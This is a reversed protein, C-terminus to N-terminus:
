TLPSPTASNNMYPACVNPDKVQSPDMTFYGRRLGEMYSWLWGAGQSYTLKQADAWKCLFDDTANFQTALSWEGYWVPLNGMAGDSRIDSRNCIDQLYAEPHAAAVGLRYYLHHDYGQPGIAAKAPNPPKNYQWIIDMFSCFADEDSLKTTLPARGQCGGFDGLWGLEVLIDPLIYSAETLAKVVASKPKFLGTSCANSLRESMDADDPMDQLVPYGEVEIGLLLEVARVTEVFNKQFHGYGPTQTANMIPENVAQIAFVSGFDPHLHSLATMVATWTLSHGTFLQNPTQVGPLAHHDLIVKIDADRLMKLGCSLYKIGGRPYSETTRNVLPEVIWYGLPIRVTNIGAGKLINVDDQTFWTSWHEAFTEDVTDPYAAALTFETSICTSCDDCIQGGMRMWEEPLMWSELVLWSGLNVGYIKDHHFAVTTKLKLFAFLLFFPFQMM